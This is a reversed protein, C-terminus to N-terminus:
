EPKHLDVFAARDEDSMADFGEVDDARLSKTAEAEGNMIVYWGRGKDHVAYAKPEAIPPPNNPAKQMEGGRDVGEIGLFPLRKALKLGEPTLDLDRTEGQQMYVIGAATHVGERRPANNTIKM